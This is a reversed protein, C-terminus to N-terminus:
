KLPELMASEVIFAASAVRRQRQRAWVTKESPIDREPIHFFAALRNIDAKSWKIFHDSGFLRREFGIFDAAVVM